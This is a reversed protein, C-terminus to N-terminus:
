CLWYVKFMLVFLFQSFLNHLLRFLLSMQDMILPKWRSTFCCYFSIFKSVVYLVCQTLIAWYYVTFVWFCKIVESQLCIDASSISPKAGMNDGSGQFLLIFEMLYVTNYSVVLFGLRTRCWITFRLGDCCFIIHLTNLKLCIEVWSLSFIHSSSSGGVTLM